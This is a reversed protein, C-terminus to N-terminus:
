IVHLNILGHVSNTKCSSNNFLGSIRLGKLIAVQAIVHSAELQM